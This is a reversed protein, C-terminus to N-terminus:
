MKEEAAPEKAEEAPSEQAEEEPSEEAGAPGEEAKEVKIPTVSVKAGLPGLMGTIEVMDGEQIGEPMIAEDLYFEPGTDGDPGSMPNKKEPNVGGEKMADLAAARPNIQPPMM